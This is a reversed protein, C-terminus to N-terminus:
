PMRCDRYSCLIVGFWGMGLMMGLPFEDNADHESRGVRCAFRRARGSQDAQARWHPRAGRYYAWM